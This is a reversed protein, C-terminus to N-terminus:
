VDVQKDRHSRSVPVREGCRVKWPGIVKLQELGAYVPVKLKVWDRFNREIGGKKKCHLPGGRVIAPHVEEILIM